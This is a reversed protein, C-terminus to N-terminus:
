ARASIRRSQDIQFLLSGMASVKRDLLRYNSETADKRISEAIESLDQCSKGITGLNRTIKVMDELDLTAEM